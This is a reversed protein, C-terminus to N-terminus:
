FIKEEFTFATDEPALEFGGPLPLDALQMFAYSIQVLVWGDRKITINMMQTAKEISPAARKLSPAGSSSTVQLLLDDGQMALDGRLAPLRRNLVEAPTAIQVAGGPWALTGQLTVPWNNKASAALGTLRFTESLTLGYDRTLANIFDAQVTVTPAKIDWDALGSLQVSADLAIGEARADVEAAAKGLLLHWPSLSWDWALAPLPAVTVVASGRWVTGGVGAVQLRGKAIDNAVWSWVTGAPFFAIVFVLVTLLGTLTILWKNM